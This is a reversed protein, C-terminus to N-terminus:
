SRSRTHRGPRWARARFVTVSDHEVAEYLDITEPTGGDVTVAVKGSTTGKEVVLDIGSGDFTYTLEDKAATSMKVAGLYAYQRKRSFWDGTYAINTDTDDVLFTGPVEQDAYPSTPQPM